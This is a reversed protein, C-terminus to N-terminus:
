KEASKVPATKVFDYSELIQFYKVIRPYLPDAKEGFQEKVLQAIDYISKEGDILPWIFSGTEDLHIYSIKPKRFLKQAITNFVGKNHISLTVIGKEDCNWEVDARVPVRDLFNEVREKKQNRRRM